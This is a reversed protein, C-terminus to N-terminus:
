DGNLVSTHPESFRAGNSIQHNLTLTQPSTCFHFALHGTCLEFGLWQCCGDEERVEVAHYFWYLSDKLCM